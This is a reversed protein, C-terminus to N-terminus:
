DEDGYFTNPRVAAAAGSGTMLAGATSVKLDGAKRLDDTRSAHKIIADHAIGDGFLVALQRQIDPVTKAALLKDLDSAFSDLWRGYQAYATPDSDWQESLLELSNVPNWVEIPTRNSAFQARLTHVVGYIAVATSDSGSYSEAALTTLVISRPSLKCDKIFVPYRDRCRKSLQVVQQLVAKQAATAFPRLPEIQAAKDFRVARQVCRSQFWAAYAKPDSSKWGALKRDPVAIRTGEGDPVAPLIDLHFKDAYNLRVCRNLREVMPAYTKNALLRNELEDLLRLPDIRFNMALQLVFDLDFENQFIPKTTTGIRFSGQSFIDPDYNYFWSGVDGIWNAAGRYHTEAQEYLTPTLQLAECAYYLLEDLISSGVTPVPASGSPGSTTTQQSVTRM